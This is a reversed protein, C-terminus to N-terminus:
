KYFETGGPRQGNNISRLKQDMDMCGKLYAKYCVACLGGNGAVSYCVDCNSCHALDLENVDNRDDNMAALSPRKTGEAILLVDCDDDSYGLACGCKDCYQIKDQDGTWTTESMQGGM